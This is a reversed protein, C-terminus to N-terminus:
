QVTIFSMIFQKWKSSILRIRAIYPLEHKTETGRAYIEILIFNYHCLINSPRRPSMSDFGCYLACIWIVQATGDDNSNYRICLYCNDHM